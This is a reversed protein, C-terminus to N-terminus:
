SGVNKCHFYGPFTLSYLSNMWREVASKKQNWRIFRIWLSLWGSSPDICFRLYLSFLVFVIITIVKLKSLFLKTTLLLLSTRSEMWNLFFFINNLPICDQASTTATSLQVRGHATRIEFCYKCVWPFSAINFLFAINHTLLFFFTMYFSVLSLDM